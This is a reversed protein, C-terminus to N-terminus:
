FIASLLARGRGERVRGNHQGGRIELSVWLSLYFRTIRPKRRGIALEREGTIEKVVSRLVHQDGRLIIWSILWNVTVSNAISNNVEWQFSFLKLLKDIVVIERGIFPRCM